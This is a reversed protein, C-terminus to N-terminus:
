HFIFRWSYILNEMLWNYTKPLFNNCAEVHGNHVICWKQSDKSVTNLQVKYPSRPTQLDKAEIRCWIISEKFVNLSCNLIWKLNLWKYYWWYFYRLNVFFCVYVRWAKNFECKFLCHYSHWSRIKQSISAVNRQCSDYFCEWRLFHLSYCM